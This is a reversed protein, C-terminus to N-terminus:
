LRWQNARQGQVGAHIVAFLEPDVPVPRHYAERNVLMLQSDDRWDTMMRELRAIESFAAAIAANARLFDGDLVLIRVETGMINVAKEVRHSDGYDLLRANLLPYQSKGTAPQAQLDPESSATV